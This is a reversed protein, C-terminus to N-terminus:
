FVVKATTLEASNAPLIRVWTRLFSRAVGVNAKRAEEIAKRAEETSNARDRGSLGVPTEKMTDSGPLRKDKANAESYEGTVKWTTKARETADHGFNAENDRYLKKWAAAGVEFNVDQSKLGKETLWSALLTTSCEAMTGLVEIGLVKAQFQPDLYAFADDVTKNLEPYARKAADVNFAIRRNSSPTAHWVLDDVWSVYINKGKAVGGSVADKGGYVKRLSQRAFELETVHSPPLLSVQWRKRKDSPQEIDAFWETAEINNQNDFILNVFINNGGTDKHFIPTVKYGSRDPYYNIDIAIVYTGGTYWPQAAIYDWQGNSKMFTELFDVTDDVRTTYEADGLRKVVRNKNFAYYVTCLEAVYEAQEETTLETQIYTLFVQKLDAAILTWTKDDKVLQELPGTNMLLSDLTKQNGRNVPNDAMFEEARRQITGLFMTRLRVVTVHRTLETDFLGSPRPEAPLRADIPAIETSTLAFRWLDLNARQRVPDALKPIVAVSHHLHWRLM